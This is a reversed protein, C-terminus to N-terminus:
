PSADSGDFMEKRWGYLAHALALARPAEVEELPLQDVCWALHGLDEALGRRRGLESLREIQQRLGMQPPLSARRAAQRVTLELYREVAHHSREALTLLRATNDLLTLKGPPLRPPPRLPRGFRGTTAWLTAALLATLHLSVCILPFDLLARWITQSRGFGHLVEDVVLAEPALRGILLEHVLLANDGRGLGATNLLDPDAIVYVEADPLRAILADGGYPVVTELRSSRILQPYSLDAAAAGRVAAGRRVETTGEAEADGLLTALVQQPEELALLEVRSVWGAPADDVVGSERWGRWKPLVVVIPVLRGRATELVRALRVLGDRHAPPELLLLPASPSAKHESALRSVVVPVEHELVEVLARYGLASRSFSNAGLVDVEGAPDGFIMYLLTLGLTVGGAVTLGWAARRSFIAEDTM